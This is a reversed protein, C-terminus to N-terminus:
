AVRTFPRFCFIEVTLKCANKDAQGLGKEKLLKHAADRRMIFIDVHLTFPYRMELSITNLWRLM